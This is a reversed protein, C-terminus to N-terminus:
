GNVFNITISKKKPKSLSVQSPCQNRYGHNEKRGMDEQLLTKELIDRASTPHKKKKYKLLIMRRIINILNLVMKLKQM